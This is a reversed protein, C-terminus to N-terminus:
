PGEPTHHLLPEPKVVKLGLAKASQVLDIYPQLNSLPHAGPCLAMAQRLTDLREESLRAFDQAIGTSPTGNHSIALTKFFAM